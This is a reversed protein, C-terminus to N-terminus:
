LKQVPRSHINKTQINQLKQLAKSLYQIKGTKYSKCNKYCAKSSFKQINKDFSSSTRTIFLNVKHKKDNQSM